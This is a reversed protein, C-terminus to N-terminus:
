PNVTITINAQDAMDVDVKPTPDATWGDSQASFTVQSEGFILTFTSPQAGCSGDRDAEFSITSGDAPVTAGAPIYRNLNITLEGDFVCQSDYVGAGMEAGTKNVIRLGAASGM